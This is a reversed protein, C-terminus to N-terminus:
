GVALFLQHLRFLPQSQFVPLFEDGRHLFHQFCVLFISTAPLGFIKRSSFSNGSSARFSTSSNMVKRFYLSLLCATSRLPFTSAFFCSEAILFHAPFFRPAPNAPLSCSAM